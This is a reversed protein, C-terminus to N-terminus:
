GYRFIRYADEDLFTEKKEGSWVVEVGAGILNVMEERGVFDGADIWFAGMERAAAMMEGISFFGDDDSATVLSSVKAIEALTKPIPSKSPRPQPLTLDPVRLASELYQTLVRDNVAASRLGKGTAIPTPPPARAAIRRRLAAEM